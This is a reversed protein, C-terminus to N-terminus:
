TKASSRSFTKITTPCAKLFALYQRNSVPIARAKSVTTMYSVIDDPEISWHQLFLSLPPPPPPHSDAAATQSASHPCIHQPPLVRLDADPMSLHYRAARDAVAWLFRILDPSCVGWSNPVMAYGKDHYGASYKLRKETEMMPICKSKCVYNTTKFTHGLRVDIILRTHRNYAPRGVFPILGGVTTM